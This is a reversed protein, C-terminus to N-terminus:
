CIQFLSTKLGSHKETPCVDQSHTGKIKHGELCKVWAREYVCLEHFPNPTPTPHATFILSSWLAPRLCPNEKM